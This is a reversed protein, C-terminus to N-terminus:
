EALLYGKERFLKLCAEVVAPDFKSSSGGKIETLAAELGLAARYPRHSAMAEVVDAVAMIRAELLIAEGRLGQPYGSGDIREHHQLAVLAVPWPFQVNKLVEYSAQAHGQILQFEIANIKGPKSLIESPITIKGIDHLYGSVLLGEVQQADLGLEVGIAAALKGVRREHGGTYPDRLESLATAVQVTGMLSSKLQEIYSRIKEEARVKESIDQMMGIVAPRGEYTARVSNVGVQSTSGDKREITFEYAKSSLKGEIREDISRAVLNHDEQAVVSLPHRGIMEGADGFGFIEATRPNVYVFKDDQIIYIGAISQEVLGRFRTESQRLEEQGRRRRVIGHLDHAFLKVTEVDGNEYNRDANGVGVIMRVCQGEMVPVSIFRQLGAHGDPLGKKDPALAYDNIVVPQKLRVCDAWIGAKSVPYHSDFAAEGYHALTDSSWAVLELEQQDESVFHLFGIRSDTLQQILDLGQQLLNKEDLDPALESLKLLAAMRREDRLRETIDESIGLLYKTKGDSGRICVRRTHLLRQGKKATLISEEPIDLMPMDGDLVERDRAAFGAAQEPPFLDLGNKGLLENRDYGVLEEGARNFVVFRLDTAEKLFIMLPANEVIAEVLEKSEKLAREAQKRESIDTLSIVIMTDGAGVKRRECVLQAVLVTGDGRRLALDASVAGDSQKVNLFLQNWSALDEPIVWAAFRKHLVKNRERKLLKTCTLNLEVILGDATLSLYGVPAFEYLDVYRDRSEELATQAQRLAENQMELEIQHVQLEHLLVETPPSPTRAAPRSALEAEASARMMAASRKEQDISPNM